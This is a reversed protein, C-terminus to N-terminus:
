KRKCLVIQCEEKFPDLNSEAITETFTPNALSSPDADNIKKETELAIRFPRSSEPAEGRNVVRAPLQAVQAVLLGVVSNGKDRLLVYHKSPEADVWHHGRLYVKPADILKLNAAIRGLLGESLERM